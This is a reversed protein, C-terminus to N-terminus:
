CVYVPAQGLQQLESFEEAEPVNIACQQLTVITEDTPCGRRVCDLM